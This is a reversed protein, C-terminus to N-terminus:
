ALKLFACEDADSTESDLNERNTSPQGFYTSPIWGNRLPSALPRSVYSGYGFTPYRRKLLRILTDVCRCRRKALCTTTNSLGCLGIDSSSTRVICIHCCGLGTAREQWRCLTALSRPSFFSTQRPIAGPKKMVIAIHTSRRHRTSIKLIGALLSKQFQPM